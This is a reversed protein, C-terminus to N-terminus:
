EHNEKKMEKWYQEVIRLMNEKFNEESFKAVSQQITKKDFRMRKIKRIAASLSEVTQEAFFIGNKGEQVFDLSGGKAFAILPTGASLAEVPTIGFPELSPFIFARAAAFYKTIERAGDYRPLFKINDYDRAMAVLKEHDAGYGAVLLNEGLNVCAQVALDVRKWNNQRGSIIFFDQGNFLKQRLRQKDNESIKKVLEKINEVDVNPSLVESSRNYYKQIEEAVYNSNALLVDPKQAAKYDIKRLPKVLIKLGFRALFNLKGFGPDRLYQDYLGWYYQTPPGQLYSIHLTKAGTKVNKAEANNISIVLDYDSLNLHSFYFYRLPSIFKRFFRPFINLWGVRVDADSFEPLTTKPRFQSTYIPADPFMKHVALLVKEAGGTETLWDCVLAIRLNKDVYNSM